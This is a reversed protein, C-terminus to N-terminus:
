RSHGRAPRDALAALCNRGPRRQILTGSTRPKLSTTKVLGRSLLDQRLALVFAGMAAEKKADPQSDRITDLFAYGKKIVDDPCYLWAMNLQNIFELMRAEADPAGVYFGRLSRVLEKYNAEKRQYQEAIRKRWENAFWAFVARLPARCIEL